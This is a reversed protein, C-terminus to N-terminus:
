FAGRHWRVLRAELRRLVVDLAMGVAGIVIMGVVVLDLQMLQRGWVMLYGIGESSALLEVFVLSLWAQMVGQRVGNFLSPLAAPLVVRAMVQHLRLGHVRAVELLSRPVNAVGKYTNVAVPTVVAISIASIKLAEDIGVFIILLPIWGVVPFQSVVEFTPLLYARVRPSVGMALGLLLGSGGGILCSWAVRGLSIELANQLDGSSYLDLLSAWVRAPAPLIQPPLWVRVVALQWLGLLLTPLLLGTLAYGARRVLGAPWAPRRWTRARLTDILARHGTSALEAAPEGARTASNM